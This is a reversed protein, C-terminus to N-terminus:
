MIYIIYLSNLLLTHHTIDIFRHAHHSARSNTAVVTFFFPLFIGLIINEVILHYIGYAHLLYITKNLEVLIDIAL